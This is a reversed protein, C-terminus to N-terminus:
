PAIKKRKLLFVKLLLDLLKKRTKFIAAVKVFLVVANAVVNRSVNDEFSTRYLFCFM